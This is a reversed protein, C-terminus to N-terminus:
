KTGAKYSVPVRYKLELILVGHEIRATPFKVTGKIRIDHKRVFRWAHVLWNDAIGKKRVKIANVAGPAAPRIGIASRQVDILLVVAAPRELEDYGKRNLLFNGRENLSAYIKDRSSERVPAETFEVWNWESSIM